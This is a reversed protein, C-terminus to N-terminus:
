PHSLGPKPNLDDVGRGQTPRRNSNLVDNSESLGADKSQAGSPENVSSSNLDSSVQVDEGNKDIQINEKRVERQVTQQEVQSNKRAVVQGTKVVDKEVVPEEKQLQITYSKEEFGAGNQAAKASDNASSDGSITETTGDEHQIVLSEHRLQVPQNVTETTVVKRITVQGADVTRKGVKIQEEYLPIVTEDSNSQVASAQAETKCANAHKKDACTSHCAVLFLGASCAIIAPKIITLKRM